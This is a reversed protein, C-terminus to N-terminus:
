PVYRYSNYEINIEYWDAGAYPMPWDNFEVILTYDNAAEPQQVITVSYRARVIDLSVSQDQLALAPIGVYTSSDCYCERNLPDPIDPWIPYWAVGNLYTPENVGDLRGPAAADMHHWYVADDRVIIRSRGDIYASINLTATIVQPNDPLRVPDTVPDAPASLARATQAAQSSIAFFALTLTLGL